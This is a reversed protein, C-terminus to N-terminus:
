GNWGAIDVGRELQHILPVYFGGVFQRLINNFIGDLSVKFFPLCPADNGEEDKGGQDIVSEPIYISDLGQECGDPPLIEQRGGDHIGDTEYQAHHDEM